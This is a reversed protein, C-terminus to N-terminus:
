HFLFPVQMQGDNGKMAKMFLKLRYPDFTASINLAKSDRMFYDFKDVDIGNRKNSIIEYLFAQWCIDEKLDANETCATLLSVKEAGRGKAERPDIGEICEKIFVM